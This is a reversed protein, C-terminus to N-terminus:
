SFRGLSDDTAIACTTDDRQRIPDNDDWRLSEAPQCEQQQNWDASVVSNAAEYVREQPAPAEIIPQDFLMSQLNYGQYIWFMDGFLPQNYPAYETHPHGGVAVKCKSTVPAPQQDMREKLLRIGRAARDTVNGGKKYAVKLDAMLSSLQSETHAVSNRQKVCETLVQNHAAVLQTTELYQKFRTQILALATEQGKRRFIGFLPRSERFAQLVVAQAAFAPEETALQVQTAKSLDPLLLAVRQNIAETRARRAEAIQQDLAGKQEALGLLAAALTSILELLNKEEKSM